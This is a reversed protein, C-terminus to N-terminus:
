LPAPAILIEPVQQPPRGIRAHGNAMVTPRDPLGPQHVWCRNSTPSRTMWGQLSIRM